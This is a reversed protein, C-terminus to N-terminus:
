FRADPDCVIIPQGDDLTLHQRAFDLIEPDCDLESCEELEWCKEIKVKRLTLSHQRLLQQLPQVEIRLLRISLERLKPLQINNALYNIGVGVILRNWGLEERGALRLVTIDPASAIVHLLTHFQSENHFYEPFTLSLSNLSALGDWAMPWSLQLKRGFYWGYAGEDLALRKLGIGACSLAKTLSSLGWSAFPNADYEHHPSARNPAWDKLVIKKLQPYRRLCTTLKREFMAKLILKRQQGEHLYTLEGFEGRVFYPEEIESAHFTISSLIPAFITTSFDEIANLGRIAFSIHLNPCYTKPFSRDVSSQMDRCTARLACLAPLDLLDTILYLVDRPMQSAPSRGDCPPESVLALWDEADDVDMTDHSFSGALQPVTSGDPTSQNGDM